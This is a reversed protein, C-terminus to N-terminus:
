KNVAKRLSGSTGFMEQYIRYYTVRVSRTLPGCLAEVEKHGANPQEMLLKRIQGAMRTNDYGSYQSRKSKEAIKLIDESIFKESDTIQIMNRITGFRRRYSGYTYSFGNEYTFEKAKPARRFKSVFDLFEKKMVENGNHLRKENM